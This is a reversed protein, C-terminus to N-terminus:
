SWLRHGDRRGTFRHVLFLVLAAAIFSVVLRGALGGGLDMGAIGLVYGGVIAGLVGAIINGLLGFGNGRMLRGALWATIVGVVVSGILWIFTIM